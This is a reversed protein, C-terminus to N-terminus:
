GCTSADFADGAKQVPPCRVDGYSCFVCCDGARPHVVSDCAPCTWLFQCAEMPMEARTKTGCAPCTVTSTRTINESPAM